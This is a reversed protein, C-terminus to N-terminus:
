YARANVVWGYAPWDQIPNLKEVSLMRLMAWPNADNLSMRDAGNTLTVMVMMTSMTAFMLFWNIMIQSTNVSGMGMVGSDAMRNVSCKEVSVAVM